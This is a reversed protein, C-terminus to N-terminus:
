AGFQNIDIMPHLFMLDFWPESIWNLTSEPLMTKRLQLGINTGQSFRFGSHFSDSSRAPQSGDAYAVDSPDRPTSSSIIQDTAPAPDTHNDPLRVVMVANLDLSFMNSGVPTVTMQHVAPASIIEAQMAPPITTNMNYTPRRQTQHISQISISRGPQTRGPRESIPINKQYPTKGPHPNFRGKRPTQFRRVFNPLCGPITPPQRAQGARQM